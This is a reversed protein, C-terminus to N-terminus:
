GKRQNQKRTIDATALGGKRGADGAGHRAGKILADHAQLRGRVDPAAAMDPLKRRADRFGERLGLRAGGGDAAADQDDVLRVIERGAAALHLGVVLVAGADVYQDLLDVVEGGARCRNRKMM